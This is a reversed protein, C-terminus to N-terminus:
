PRAPSPRRLSRLFWAAPALTAVVGALAEKVGIIAPSPNCDLPLWVAYYSAQALLHVAVFPLLRPRAFPVLPILSLLYWPQMFGHLLLYYAYLTLAARPLTHDIGTRNNARATTFASAVLWAAAAVRFAVGLAWALAPRHLGFHLAARPLCELSRTCHPLADGPRGLLSGVLRLIPFREAGLLIAAILAVAALAAAGLVRALTLRRGLRTFLRTALYYM